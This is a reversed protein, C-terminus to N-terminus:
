LSKEIAEATAALDQLSMDGMHGVRLVKDKLQDQGAVIIFGEKAVKKKVEQASVGEPVSLCSLSPSATEPFLKLSIRERFYQAKNAIETLHQDMGKTLIDDLVLDLAIVFHTPTSYRTKGGQNAVKESKLDFYYSPIDQHCAEARESLSIFSMGTPLMFAKQSGGVVVDLGWDDMPLPAAGLATIGDVLSLLGHKQCILGLEKSPLLAGTSTECAQWALAQFDGGKITEEIVNLDVNSGWPRQIEKYPIGYAKAIKGWREGFKGSNIFLFKKDRNLTNVMAAELGGTGTAALLYCHQTTQFVKPLKKFVAELIEGFEKSRHHCELDSLSQRVKQPLPVPGPTMLKQKEFSYTKM